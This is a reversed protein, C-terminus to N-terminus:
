YDLRVATQTPHKDAVFILSRGSISNVTVKNNHVNNNRSVTVTTM